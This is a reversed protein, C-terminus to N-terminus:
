LLNSPVTQPLILTSLSAGMEHKGKKVLYPSDKEWQNEKSSRPGDWHVFTAHHRLTKSSHVSVM